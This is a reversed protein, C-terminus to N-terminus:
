ERSPNSTTGADRGKRRENSALGTLGRLYDLYGFVQKALDGNIGYQARLEDNSAKVATELHEIQEDKLRVVEAHWENKVRFREKWEAEASILRDSWNKDVRDIERRLVIKDGRLVGLTAVVSAIAAALGSMVGVIVNSDM